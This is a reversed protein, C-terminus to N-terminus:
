NTKEQLLYIFSDKKSAVMCFFDHMLSHQMLWCSKNETSTKRSNSPDRSTAFSGNRWFNCRNGRSLSPHCHLDHLDLRPVDPVDTNVLLVESPRWSLSPPSLHPAAVNVLGDKSVTSVQYNSTTWSTKLNEIQNWLTGYLYRLYWSRWVLSLSGRRVAQCGGTCPEKSSLIRSSTSIPM